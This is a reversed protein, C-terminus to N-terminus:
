SKSRVTSREIFARLSARSIRLKRGVRIAQLEGRKVMERVTRPRLDLLRAVSKPDLHEDQANSIHTSPRQQEDM